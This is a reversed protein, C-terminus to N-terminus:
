GSSFKKPSNKLLKTLRAFYPQKLLFFFVPIHTENSHRRLPHSPKEFWWGWSQKSLRKNLCLNFFVEFSRRMPRQPHFEGTSPFKGPVPLNGACLALLACFSEIQHRWWTLLICCCYVRLIKDRGCMSSQSRMHHSHACKRAHSADACMGICAIRISAYECMCYSAFTHM